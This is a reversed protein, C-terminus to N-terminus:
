GAERDREAIRIFADVKDEVADVRTGLQNIAGRTARMEEAITGVLGAQKRSLDRIERAMQTFVLFREIGDEGRFALLDHVKKLQAKEDTTLGVGNRSVAGPLKGVKEMYTLLVWAGLLLVAVWGPAGELLSPELQPVAAVATPVIPGNLLDLKM